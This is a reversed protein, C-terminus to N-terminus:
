EFVGEAFVGPEFVPRARDPLPRPMPRLAEAAGPVLALAASGLLFGRRTAWLGTAPV